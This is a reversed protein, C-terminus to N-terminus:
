WYYSKITTPFSTDPRTHSTFQPPDTPDERDLAPRQLKIVPTKVWGDEYPSMFIRSYHLKKIKWKGNEKIYENEYVGSGM